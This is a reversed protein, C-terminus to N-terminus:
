PAPPIFEFAGTDCLVGDEGVGVVDVRPVGRADTTECSADVGHDLAPSGAPIPRTPLDDPAYFDVPLLEPDQNQQDALADFDCATEGELNGGASSIPGLCDASKAGWVISNSVTVTGATQSADLNVAGNSSLTSSNITASADGLLAVGGGLKAKNVDVTTNRLTLPGRAAIAGGLGGRNFALTSRRLSANGQATVELAGGEAKAKCSVFITDDITAAGGIVSMGGGDDSSSCRYFFVSSLTGAGASRICGGSVEGPFGPDFDEKATKANLLTVRRLTLSGTPQVDFIRDKAGKGDIFTHDRQGADGRIEIQTTIDLDGTAAADEGAGDRSLAFLFPVLYITDAAMTENATQVAARLTCQEGDSASIDCSGDGLDLDVGDGASNVEIAAAAAPVPSCLLAVVCLLLLSTRM